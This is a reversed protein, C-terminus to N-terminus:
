PRSLRYFVRPLANDVPFFQFSNTLTYGLLPSWVATPGLNTAYELTYHTGALGYALLLREQSNLYAELLPPDANVTHARFFAKPGLSNVPIVAFSNTFPLLLLPHWVIPFSLSTTYDVEYALWPTGYVQLTPTGNVARSLELIPAVTTFEYARYFARPPTSDVPLVQMISTLAVRTLANWNNPGSLNAASQVQYSAGPHGYLALSRSGDPARLAELLSQQGVVVVRGSQVSSQSVVSADANTGQLTGPTLPVFASVQNSVTVFNLQAIQQNGALSQGPGAGFSVRLANPGSPSLSASGVQPILPQLALVSFRNTAVSLVFSFNTLFTGAQLNIPISGGQGALVAASGLSLEVFAGFSVQASTGVVFNSSFALSFTQVIQGLPLGRVVATFEETGSPLVNTNGAAALLENISFFAQNTGAGDGVVAALISPTNSNSLLVIAGGPSTQGLSVVLQESQLVFANEGPTTVSPLPGNTPWVASQGNTQAVRLSYYYTAGPSCSSVRAHILGLSMTEQRLAQQNLRRDYANTAGPNGTLLPYLELGVQGALNTVGGADAFVSVSVTLNSDIASSCTGVISFSSPTVNVTTVGSLTIGAIAARGALLLGLLILLRVPRAKGPKRRTTARATM